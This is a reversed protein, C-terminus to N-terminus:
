PAWIARVCTGLAPQSEVELDASISEAREAMIVLGLRGTGADKV